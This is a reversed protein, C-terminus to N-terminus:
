CSLLLRFHMSFGNLSFWSIHQNPLIQGAPLALSAQVDELHPM